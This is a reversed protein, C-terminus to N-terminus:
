TLMLYLPMAKAKWAPSYAHREDAAYFDSARLTSFRIFYPLAYSADRRRYISQHGFGEHRSSPRRAHM